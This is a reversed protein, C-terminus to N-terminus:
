YCVCLIPVGVVQDLTVSTVIGHFIKNQSNYSVKGSKAFCSPYFKKLQGICVYPHLTYDEIRCLKRLVIFPYIIVNALLM